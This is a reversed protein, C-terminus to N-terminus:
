DFFDFFDFFRTSFTSFKTSFTSDRASFTTFRACSVKIKEQNSFFVKESIPLSCLREIMEQRMIESSLTIRNLKYWLDFCAM